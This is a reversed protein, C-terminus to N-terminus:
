VEDSVLLGLTDAYWGSPADLTATKIAAHGFRKVQSPGPPVRQLEDVRM